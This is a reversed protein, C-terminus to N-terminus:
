KRTAAEHQRGRSILGAMEGLEEALLELLDDLTVIGVLWGGNDVVPVRRVGRGRMYRITEFIGESERVTALEGAMIDGVTLGDPKVGAAVVEIAIDRDTVIGVPRRGGEAEDVIVLTGVHHQRMLRAAEPVDMNREAIVVERNCIEGITM